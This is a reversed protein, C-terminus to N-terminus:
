KSTTVNKAVPTTARDAPAKDRRVEPTEDDSPKEYGLAALEKDAAKIRDTMGYAVANAREALARRIQGAKAYHVGEFSEKTM